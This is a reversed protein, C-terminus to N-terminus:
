LNTHIIEIQLWPVFYNWGRDQNHIRFLIFRIKDADKNVIWLLALDDTDTFIEGKVFIM